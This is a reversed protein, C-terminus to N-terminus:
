LLSAFLLTIIALSVLIVVYLFLYLIINNDHYIFLSLVSQSIVFELEIIKSSFKEYWTRPAQCLGYISKRMQCVHTSKSPDIYGPPQSMFVM